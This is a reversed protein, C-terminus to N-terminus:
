ILDRYKLGMLGQLGGTHIMVIQSGRPFYDREVLQWLAYFHKGSYVPELPIAFRARFQQCFQWLEPSFKAYGGGHFEEFITWNAQKAAEPNLAMVQEKLAAAGKLVAIGLIHTDTAVGQLLGALTGGSGVPCSIYDAPPLTQAFEAVGLLALTNSGGEPVIHLDPHSAQLAALYDPDHRLRYSQRDVAQLTAGCAQAVKLTPNHKDIQDTRVMLHCRLRHLRCAMATAYLHNSFAGGFSLIGQFRQEQAYRLNYKLKHWKNGNVLPHCLDDRVVQIELGKATLWPDQLIQRPAPSYISMPSSLITM